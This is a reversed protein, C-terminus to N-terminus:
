RRGGDTIRQHKLVDLNCAAANSWLFKGFMKLLNGVLQLPGLIARM